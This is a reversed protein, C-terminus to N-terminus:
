FDTKLVLFASLTCAEQFSTVPQCNLDHITLRDRM